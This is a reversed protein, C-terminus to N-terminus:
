REISQMPQKMRWERTQHRSRRGQQETEANWRLLTGQEARACREVLHQMFPQEAQDVAMGVLRIIKGPLRQMAAIWTRSIAAQWRIQLAALEGAHAVIRAQDDRDVGIKPLEQFPQRRALDIRHHEQVRLVPHRRLFDARQPIRDIAGAAVANADDEPGRACLRRQLALFQRRKPFDPQAVVLSAVDAELEVTGPDIAPKVAVHTASRLKSASM